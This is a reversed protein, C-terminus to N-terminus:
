VGLGVPPRLPTMAPDHTVHIPVASGLRVYTPRDTSRPPPLDRPILFAILAEYDELRICGASRTRQDAAFLSRDPTDHLYIGSDNPMVFKARGMANRPGPRQRM